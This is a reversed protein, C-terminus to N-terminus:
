RQEVAHMWSVARARMRCDDIAYICECARGVFIGETRDSLDAVVVQYLFESALRVHGDRKSKRAEQHRQWESAREDNQRVVIDLLDAILARLPEDSV